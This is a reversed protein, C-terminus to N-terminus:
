KVIHCFTEFLSVIAISRTPGPIHRWQSLRSQWSRDRWRRQLCQLRRL